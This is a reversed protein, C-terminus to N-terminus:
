KLIKKGGVINIGRQIKQIRQGALNYISSEENKMRLEENIGTADDDDFGYFGKVGNQIYLFAKFAPITTGQTAKYFGVGNEGNALIYQQGDATLDARNFRLDNVKFPAVEEDTYPFNYEGAGAKVLVAEYSPIYGEVPLLQATEEVQVTYVQINAGAPIELDHTAVFTAYGAETVTVTQYEPEPTADVKKYLQLAGGTSSSYCAFGYTGNNRLIANVGAADNAKNTFEHAVHTAMAEVSWLAKDDADVLMQAQNRVGTGAAYAKAAPSYITWYDGSPAIHWVIAENDTTIVDNEPTVEAYQLRNNAVENSMAKGDYYIIYDGEVLDGYFLEYQDGTAPAEYAEQSVTVANSFLKYEAAVVQFFTSRAEGQNAAITYNVVFGAEGTTIETTIWDPAAPLPGGDADHFEIFLQDNPTLTLNETTITLTGTEGEATAAIETPRVYIAPRPEEYKALKINGLGVNGSVKESYLWKIYRVNEGLNTFEESLVDSAALEESYSQLEDFTVGDESTQVTFIGDAFSNGKIDFSLVGPRENFALLLYDGTTNFKLYPAAAYDKSDIGEHTLGVTEAIDAVKGNFEFPLEAYDAVPAEYGEQTVTVAKTYNGYVLTITATRAETSENATTSFTVIAAAASTQINTIWDAETYASMEAGQEPNEVSYEISGETADYALTVDEANIVPALYEYPAQVVTVNVQSDISGYTVTITAQRQVDSSNAECDVLIMGDVKQSTTINTIWSADTTAIFAAGTMPNEVNCTFEVHTQDHAINITPEDVTITPQVLEDYEMKQYLYIGQDPTSRVSSAEFVDEDTGTRYSISGYNNSSGEEDGRKVVITIPSQPDSNEENFNIKWRANDDVYQQTRLYMAAPSSLYAGAAEDYITYYGEVDPGCIIFESVGADAALEMESSFFYYDTNVASRYRLTSTSADAGGMVVMKGSNDTTKEAAIIYRRGSTIQQVQSERSVVVYRAPAVYGAQTLTILDSYYTTGDLTVGVKLFATRAEENTNQSFSLMLGNQTVGAENIWDPQSAETATGDANVDFFQVFPTNVEWDINEIGVYTYASTADAAVNIETERVTFVPPVIRDLSVLQNGQALQNTGNYVVLNGMVVVEDGVQIQDETQFPDGDIYLGRYVIMETDTSGDDSIRYTANGYNTSVETVTSVIGRVYVNEGEPSELAQAVSYPADASCIHYVATALLSQEGDKVAIAKIVTTQEIIIEDQAGFVTSNPTPETGDTTYYITAGETLCFLEVSIEGNYTGPDMSFTPTEVAASPHILSVLQCGQAFEYTTNYKTLNGYVVVTDGVQVTSADADNTSVCRYAQLFNNDGEADVFNFTINSHQESWATPIATVVGKAYVGTTGAGADIAARADAVTYPDEQTGNHEFSIFTYTASAVSSGDLGDCYAIAKVTTTEELVFPGEYVLSNATPETGDTTYYVTAAETACNISVEVPQAYTGAAPSFTPTACQTPEESSVEASAGWVVFRKAASSTLKVTTEANIGTLSISYEFSSEEGSLTFPSNNTIGNDATLAISAPSATAAADDLSLNLSLGSVGKWAAAYFKLTVTGAPVTISMDGGAKSTGVKMGDTENVTCASANTGAKLTVEEAMVTGALATTMIAALMCVRLWLKNLLNQKM